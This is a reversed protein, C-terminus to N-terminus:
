KSHPFHLKILLFKFYCEDIKRKNGFKGNKHYFSFTSMIMKVSFSKLELFYTYIIKVNRSKGDKGDMNTTSSM